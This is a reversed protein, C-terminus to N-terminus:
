EAPAITKTAANRFAITLGSIHALLDAVTYEECPTIASLQDDTVGSLLQTLQRAPPEHDVITTM